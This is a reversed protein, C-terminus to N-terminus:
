RAELKLTLQQIIGESLVAMASSTRLCVELHSILGNSDFQILDVGRM